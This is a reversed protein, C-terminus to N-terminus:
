AAQQPRLQSNRDMSKKSREWKEALITTQISKSVANFHAIRTKAYEMDFGEEKFRDTLTECEDLQKHAINVIDAM